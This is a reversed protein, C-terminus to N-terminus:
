TRNLEELAINLADAGCGRKVEVYECGSNVPNFHKQLSDQISWYEGCFYINLNSRYFYWDGSALMAAVFRHTEAAEVMKMQAPNLRMNTTM